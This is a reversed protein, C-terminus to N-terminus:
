KLAGVIEQGFGQASDPGDATIIKGDREVAKATYKVGRVKRFDEAASPHVTARRGQLVGARALIMPAICIGALIKKKEAADRAIHHALPDEIYTFAGMGGIFVVADFDGANVDKLLMDVRARAGESGVAFPMATSAVMVEVGAQTLIAFPRSFEQEQFDKAAIIFVAKKQPAAGAFQALAFACVLAAAVLVESFKKM